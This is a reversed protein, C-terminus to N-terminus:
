IVGEFHEEDKEDDEAELRQFAKLSSAKADAHSYLVAMCDGSAEDPSSGSQLRYALDSSVMAKFSTPYVLYGDSKIKYICSEVLRNVCKVQDVSCQLPPVWGGRAGERAVDLREKSEGLKLSGPLWLDLAKEANHIEGPTLGMSGLTEKTHLMLAEITKVGNLLLKTYVDHNLSLRSLPFSFGEPNFVSCLRESRYLPASGHVIKDEPIEVLNGFVDFLFESSGSIRCLPTIKSGYYSNLSLSHAAFADKLVDHYQAVADGGYAHLLKGVTNLERSSFYEEAQRELELISIDDWVTACVVREVEISDLVSAAPDELLADFSAAVATSADASKEVSTSVPREEPLRSLLEKLVSAMSGKRPSSSAAKSTSVSQVVSTNEPEPVVSAKVAKPANAVTESTDKRCYGDDKIVIDGSKILENLALPFLDGLIMAVAAMLQARHMPAQVERLARCILPKLFEVAGTQEDSNSSMDEVGWASFAAQVSREFYDARAYSSFLVVDCSALGPMLRGALIKILSVRSASMPNEVDEYRLFIGVEGEVANYPRARVCFWFSTAPSFTLPM